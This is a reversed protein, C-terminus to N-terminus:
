PGGAKDTHWLLGRRAYTPCLKLATAAFGAHGRRVLLQTIHATSLHTTAASSLTSMMEHKMDSREDSLFSSSHLLRTPFVRMVCGGVRGCVCPLITNEKMVAAQTSVVCRTPPRRSHWDGWGDRSVRGEDKRAELTDALGGCRSSV